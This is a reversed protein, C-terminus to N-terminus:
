TGWFLENLLAAPYTAPVRGPHDLDFEVLCREQARENWFEPRALLRPLYFTSIELCLEASM